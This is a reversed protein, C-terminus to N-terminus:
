REPGEGSLLGPAQKEEVMPWSRPVWGKAYARDLEMATLLGWAVAKDGSSIEHRLKAATGRVDKGTRLNTATYYSPRHHYVASKTPQSIAIVRVATLVNSVMTEYVKGVVVDALKM